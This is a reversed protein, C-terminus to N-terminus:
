SSGGRRGSRPGSRGRTARLARRRDRGSNRCRRGSPCSAPRPRRRRSPSARRGRSRRRGSPARRGCRDRLRGVAQEHAFREEAALDPFRESEQGVVEGQDPLDRRDLLLEAAAFVQRAVLRDGREVRAAEFADVVDAAELLPDLPAAPVGEQLHGALVDEAGDGVLALEGAERVAHREGPLREAHGIGESGALLVVPHRDIDRQGEDVADRGLREFPADRPLEGLLDFGHDLAQRLPVALEEDRGVLLGLDDDAVHRAASADSKSARDRKALCRKRASMGAASHARASIGFCRLIRRAMSSPWPLGIAALRSRSSNRRCRFSAARAAADSGPTQARPRPCHSRVPIVRQSKPVSGSIIEIPGPATANGPRSAAPAATFRRRNLVWSSARRDCTWPTSASRRSLNELSRFNM